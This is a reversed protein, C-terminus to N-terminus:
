ILGVDLNIIYKNLQNMEAIMCDLLTQKYFDQEKKDKLKELSLARKLYYYM